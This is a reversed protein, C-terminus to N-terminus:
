FMKEFMEVSIPRSYLYGQVMDCGIKKLFEAQEETEVGECITKIHIKKAMEVVQEIIIQSRSSNQTQQLFGKDIKLIDVPMEKLLTLSSFGTGFDDISIQFGLEKLNTLLEFINKTDEGLVSETLEIEIYEAPIAFRDVLNMLREVFDKTSIHMRSMNIAIPIIRKGKELWDHMKKIVEEYVYFDLSVIFGNKEFLPIFNDPTIMGKKPHQWRVLAEAGILAETQLDYKPQYYVIFEHNQLAEEMMSEIENENLIKQELTKDYFAIYKNRNGKITAKAINAKDICETISCNCSDKAIEFVGFKIPIHFNKGRNNIYFEESKGELINKFIQNQESKEFMIYFRDAIGRACYGKHDLNKILIFAINQLIFDGFDSGYHDNIYKFKDVDATLLYYSQDKNKEIMHQTAIVFKNYSWIKTLPDEKDYKKHKHIIQGMIVFLIILIALALLLIWGYKSVFSGSTAPYSANIINKTVIKNVEDQSIQGIAKNLINCLINGYESSVAMCISLEVDITTVTTLNKYSQLNIITQLFISDLLTLDATGNSVANMCDEISNFDIINWNPFIEKVYSEIGISYKPLALLYEEKQWIDMGEKTVFTYTANFFNSTCDFLDTEKKQNSQYMSSIIDVKGKELEQLAEEYSSVQIFEAQIGAYSAIRNWLDGYIGRYEGSNKDIYCIPYFDKWIAVKFIGIEKICDAEERTLGILNEYSTSYYERYLDGNFYPNEKRINEVAHNLQEMLVHNGKGTIFYFPMVGFKAVLREDTSVNLSGIVVADIEGKHLATLLDTTSPYYVNKTEFKNELAYEFFLQNQFCDEMMGVCMGNFAEFDEYYITDNDNAVYLTAYEVGAEYSSYEYFQGREESYQATTLLDIEGSKLMELCESWTAFVYEYEWDTYKAIEELYAVGYGTYSGDTERDMFGKYDFCGVQIKEQASIISSDSFLLFALTICTVYKFISLCCSENWKYNNLM